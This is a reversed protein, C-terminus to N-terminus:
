IWVKNSYDCGYWSDACSDIIFDKGSIDSKSNIFSTNSCKGATQCIFCKVTWNDAIPWIPVTMNINVTLNFFQAFM